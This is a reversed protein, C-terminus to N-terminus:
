NIKVNQTKNVAGIIDSSSISIQGEEDSKIYNEIASLKSDEVDITGSGGYRWNKQYVSLQIKNNELLSNKIITKSSDKSAVGYNNLSVISDVISVKSNEGVSVGKDGSSLINMQHLQATSEMFDIGDNGSNIINSNKFLINQSIDVDISDKYAELFNSNLVQINNSYIIHMMDDFASNNKILINDFIINKTSHVSLSAFYNIGDISKGSANKIIINKFLSGKTKEGHLAITGWKKSEMENKFIIPKKSSGVANVKNEFVISAGESMTFITGELIKTESKIILDENLFINGSLINIKSEDNKVIAINNLSPGNAIKEDYKLILEKKNYKNLTMLETPKSNNQTFFTFKTNGTILHNRVNYPSLNVPIRNAFLKIDMKFDGSIDPYFYKDGDDLVQNNNYDLALWQLTKDDFKVLLNSIPIIKNIKVDFGKKNISWSCKPNTELFNILDKEREKLSKLLTYFSKENEPGKWSSHDAHKRKVAGLDTKQSVLYKAKLKELDKIVEDFIKEEKVVKYLIDYKNNLFKSSQNIVTFLDGNGSDYNFNDENIKERRYRTDHPIIHINGSWVDIALRRNHTSDSIENNLLIELIMARAFLDINEFKLIQNLDSKSSEAKKINNSLRILDTYDNEHRTNLLSIKEWLGPNQDLNFELDIKKESNRSAEGKYLNVPMIKNRRLFSENLREKEMYIGSSKDNIFLEVLRVESVLLNLKKAIKFAVYEDLVRNQSPRYEFYRRGNVIESKKTKIRIAKQVFMWNNPNDGFYRMRVKQKKNNILMEAKLYKKTSYPVDSLLKNSTKEPVYIDVRPLGEDSNNLKFLFNTIKKKRLDFSYKVWNMAKPYTNHSKHGLNFDKILINFCFLILLILFFPFFFTLSASLLKKIKM